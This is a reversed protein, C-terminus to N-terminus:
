QLQESGALDTINIINPQINYSIFVPLIKKTWDNLDRQSKPVVHIAAHWTKRDKVIEQLKNLSMDM